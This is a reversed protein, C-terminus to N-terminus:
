MFVLLNCSNMTLYTGLLTRLLIFHEILIQPMPWHAFIWLEIHSKQNLYEPINHNVKILLFYYIVFNYRIKRSWGNHVPQDCQPSKAKYSIIMASLIQHRNHFWKSLQLNHHWFYLGRSLLCTGYNVSSVPVLIFKTYHLLSINMSNEGIKLDRFNKCKELICTDHTISLIEIYWCM